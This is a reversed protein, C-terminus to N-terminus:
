TAITTERRTPSVTMLPGGRWQGAAGAAVRRRSARHHADRRAHGPDGLRRELGGRGPRHPAGRRGHPGAPLVHVTARVREGAPVAADSALGDRYRLNLFGRSIPKVTGDPAVDALTPALQGHDADQTLSLELRPTGTIRTARTLPASRYGLWTAEAEPARLAIEETTTGLDTFTADTAGLQAGLTGGTLGRGLALLQERRRGAAM